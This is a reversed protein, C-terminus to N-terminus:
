KKNPYWITKNAISFMSKSSTEVSKVSFKSVKKGVATKSGVEISNFNIEFIKDQKTFGTVLECVVIEAKEDPSVSLYLIESDPTKKTLDNDRNSIAEAIKFRKAFTAGNKGDRYILNFVMNKTEKGFIHLYIIDKGAFVKDAIRKVSYKGDRRITLIDDLDSCDSIFEFKKLGYGFFGEERNVYLKQNNSIVETADIAGFTTIKTKRERGTGYKKLLEKFYKIAYRTLNNLNDETENLEEEMKRMAEDAKFSDYKSIRKIRIETLRLIDDETITRYFQKKYPELGADITSIVAEFTECEEIKRYIRKEIFIKELSGYLIKEQLERKQVLLEQELLHLTNDTSIKLLENVNTFVPKDDIIVCTNPSISVECNTFAYLADRTTEPETGPILQIVIEVQQATNDIVKKIKIKGADAAKVISEIMQVTTTGFPLDKIILTKRDKIEINSRVRLRSGKAGGKYHTCDVLGASLFDPLLNPTEGKLIQISAEILECFNHPMIKTALGVAIGEAGQALLLPFKVPLQIPEKKRGDYSPQWQTIKPNFVVELAFKSLRAEIYRAAAASDGTNTDGWNGQTDILLDKQGLNVLAEGISADGHPHYQMSQGIINAVKHFRGDEMDYMAHLIRRQVPKLGDELTPVARELIVYSAYDLFWDEYVESVSTANQKNAIM